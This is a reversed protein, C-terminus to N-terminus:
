VSPAPYILKRFDSHGHFRNSSWDIEQLAMADRTTADDYRHMRIPEYAEDSLADLSKQPGIVNKSHAM